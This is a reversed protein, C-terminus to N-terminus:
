IEMAGIAAFDPSHIDSKFVGPKKNSEFFLFIIESDMRSVLELLYAGNFAIKIQEGTYVCTLNENASQSYNSDMSMISVGIQSMDFIVKQTFKDSLVLLRKLASLLETKSLEIYREYKPIAGKWDFYVGDMLVGTIIYGDCSVMLSNKSASLIADGSLLISNLASIFNYSVIMNPSKIKKDMFVASMRDGNTAFFSVDDTFEISLGCRIDGIGNDPRRAYSTKFLAEALDPYPLTFMGTSEHKIFPMNEGPEFPMSCNAKGATINVHDKQVDFTVPQDPLSGIWSKLKDAWVLIDCKDGHVPMTTSISFENNCCTIQLEKGIKFRFCESAPLFTGVAKSCTQLAKNLASQSITFTM